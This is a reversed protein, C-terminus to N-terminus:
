REGNETKELVMAVRAKMGAKLKPNSLIPNKSYDERLADKDNQQIGSDDLHHGMFDGRSVLLALAGQPRSTILFGVSDRGVVKGTGGLDQASRM